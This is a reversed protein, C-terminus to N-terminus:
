AAALAEQCFVAKGPQCNAQSSQCSQKAEILVQRFAAEDVPISKSLEDKTDDRAKQRKRRKRRRGKEGSATESNDRPTETVADEVVKTAATDEVVVDRTTEDDELM